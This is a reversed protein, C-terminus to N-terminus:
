GASSEPGELCCLFLSRSGLGASLWNSSFGQYKVILINLFTYFFGLLESFLPDVGVRRVDGFPHGRRVEELVVRVDFLEIGILLFILVLGNGQCSADLEDTDHSLSGEGLDLVIVPEYLDVVVTVVKRLTVVVIYCLLEKLHTIDDFRGTEREHCLCPLQCQVTFIDLDDGFRDHRQGLLEVSQCVM